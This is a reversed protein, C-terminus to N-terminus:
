NIRLGVLINAYLQVIEEAVISFDKSKFRMKSQNRRNFLQLFIESRKATEL